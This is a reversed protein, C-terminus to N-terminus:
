ESYEKIIKEMEKINCMSLLNYQVKITMNIALKKTQEENLTNIIEIIQQKIKM